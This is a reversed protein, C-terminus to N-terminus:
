RAGANDVCQVHAAIANYRHFFASVMDFWRRVGAMEIESLRDAIVGTCSSSGVPLRVSCLFYIKLNSIKGNLIKGWHKILVHFLNLVNDKFSLLDKGNRMYCSKVIQPRKLFDNLLQSVQIILTFTLQRQLKYTAPSLSSRCERLIKITLFACTAIM